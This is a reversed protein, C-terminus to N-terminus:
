ASIYETILVIGDVGNGGARDIEAPDALFVAGSGGGGYGSGNVGSGSGPAVLVFGQGSIGMFSRGARGSQALPLAFNWFSANGGEGPILVDGVTATGPVASIFSGVTNNGATGLGGNGGGTVVLAGLSSGGANSGNNAGAAGGAGGAGVTVSQSVGIQAATLLAKAYGGGSGCQAAGAKGVTSDVGGGGGGGAQTEAICYLMGPTPTYTYSGAPYFVQLVVQNIADAVATSIVNNTKVIGAGAVVNSQYTIPDTGIVAVTATEIWQTRANVTGETITFMEGRLIQSPTNYSTARTLIWNVSVGDGINSVVYLGNQFTSSQDKVLILNGVAAAVSDITLAAFGGANTLTAGVGSTGNSYTATLNATTALRAIRQSNSLIIAQSVSEKYTVGNQVVPFIDTIQASPVTPLNSIKIGAM